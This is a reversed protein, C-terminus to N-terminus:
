FLVQELRSIIPHKSGFVDQTVLWDTSVKRIKGRFNECVSFCDLMRPAAPLKTLCKRSEISEKCSTRWLKFYFRTHHLKKMQANDQKRKVYNKIYELQIGNIEGLLENLIDKSVINKNISQMASM